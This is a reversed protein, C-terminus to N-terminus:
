PRPPAAVAEVAVAVVAAVAVAAGSPITATISITGQSSCGVPLSETLTIYIQDGPAVTGSGNSVAHAQDSGSVGGSGLPPTCGSGSLAGMENAVTLPVSTTFPDNWVITVAQVPGIAAGADDRGNHQCSLDFRRRRRQM